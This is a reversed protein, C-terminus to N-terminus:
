EYGGTLTFGLGIIVRVTAIAVIPLSGIILAAIATRRQNTGLKIALWSILAGSLAVWACLREVPSSYYFGSAEPQYFDPHAALCAGTSVHACPASILVVIAALLGVGAVVIGTWAALDALRMNSGEKPQVAKSRLVGGVAVVVGLVGLVILAYPAPPTLPNPNAAGRAVEAASPHFLLQFGLWSTGAGAMWLLFWGSDPNWLPTVSEDRGGRSNRNM